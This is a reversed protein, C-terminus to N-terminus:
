NNTIEVKKIATNANFTPFYMLEAKAPNLTYKGSYRPTLDITFTYNGKNLKKCFIATEHKFYERHVEVGYFSQKKNTYSCGGPIPVNIMVYDADKLVKLTVTLKTEEGAKLTNASSNSFSTTIIFDSKKEKPTSEWYQQYATFYVPFDGTKEVKIEQDPHLTMEFPFTSVTKNVDGSIVLSSKKTTSKGKLLDPLITEIIQASEYTNTWYGKNRNELFYNRMKTFQEKSALSDRKLVRYAMLSNQVNNQIIYNSYNAYYKTNEAYYVSGFMTEKKFSDLTDTSHSIKCLQKLELINLATYLSSDSRTELGKIYKPYDVKAEILNLIKLLRVKKNFALDKSKELKWVLGTTINNTDLNVKFGANQAQILAELVHLSVWLSTSSNEWWGWNGASNKSKEILRILKKVDKNYKFKEGRYDSIKKSALLGKLKSAKQENCLYRYKRLRQLEMDIVNLVDSKAYIKVEGLNKDFSLNVSTDNDFVHFSGKTQELGIPFVPVKRLEGDFYGDEKELSYKVKLTDGTAILELTDLVADTCIQKKAFKEQGNIELKTTINVKNPTYNLAKGIAYVSDTEVLFRPTALKTMLPKYSKIRKQAQGAQKKNNMALFYTDWSTVDDPFTATFTAKGNEDTVLRPEWFAYDSFNERLTSLQSVADFFADDYDAGKDDSTKKYLKGLGTKTKIVVVGNIIEMSEIDEPNIDNANNGFDTGGNLSNTGNMNVLVGDIMFPPSESINVGAIKGQLANVMARSKDRSLEGYDYSNVSSVASNVSKYSRSYGIATVVVEEIDTDASLKVDQLFNHDPIVREKSAFGVFSYVLTNKGEPLIISYWGDLNTITGFTTGKVVVNAGPVSEGTEGEFIVGSVEKGPGTYTYEKIYAKYIDDSETEKVRGSYYTNHLLINDEILENVRESFSDPPLLKQEKLQLNNIGNLKIEVSDVISYAEKEYFFIIKYMGSELQHFTRTNGAYVNLFDADNYKLMVVTLPKNVVNNEYSLQLKAFGKTTTNDHLYRSNTRKQNNLYEQKYDKIKQLTIYQDSFDEKVGKNSLQNPYRNVTNFQRMRLWKENFDYEFFPEHTAEKSCSDLLNFTFNGVLPGAINKSGWNSKSKLYMINGDQELYGFAKGFNNRYPVIYKHLTYKENDDLKADKNDVQVKSDLIETDVSFILKENLKFYVSDMFIEYYATRLRIQHYGSDIKFSYPQTHTSWEFYVPKNDVYIVHVTRPKGNDVVFPAFQTLTDPSTYSFKYLGNEPYLFKYFEISDSGTKKTWEPFDLYSDWLNQARNGKLKFNNILTKEKRLKGLYPLNPPTYGFKKTVSYATLDVGSVPKGKYDTVLVEIETKQGPYVIRPHKVEVNLKKERLSVKYNEEKVSGAWLYRISFYYNQKNKAKINYVLTDGYGKLKLKDKKYISYSFPIKRPNSVQIFVSDSNRDSYCALLSEEQEPYFMESFSDTEIRYANYSSNLKVKCPTKGKYVETKNEYKDLAYIKVENSLFKGNESYRFQISDQLLESKIAQKAHYFHFQKHEKKIENDSTRMKVWVNYKCDINPFISDPIMIETEGSAKLKKKLFLLTDPVFTKDDYYKSISSPSVHVTVRADALNLDNEDTGKVFISFPKNRYQNEGSTRVNLKTSKLEYDEYKFNSSIYGKYKKKNLAVTCTRDLTINLSDKLVFEYAYAGKRFPKITALEKNSNLFVKVEKNLPKGNKNIIYAKLKVTDGPMYKPKNFVMYGTYKDNFYGGDFYYEFKNEARRYLDRPYYRLRRVTGRPYWDIASIVIDIPLRVVFSVPRWVFRFPASYVVNKGARLVWSNNYSRKLEQYTTIGNCEVTLVGKQNSKKDIYSQTKGDFRLNKWRVKVKANPIVEGDLNTVQICLDTNNNLVHVNFDQVTALDFKQDGADSFTKIYHGNKLKGLYESGTPFSDVMTHLYSEDIRRKYDKYISKAQEPKLKYIYTYYSTRNSEHLRQAQSSELTTLLIATVLLTLKITLNKM